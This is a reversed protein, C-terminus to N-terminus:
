KTTCSENEMNLYTNMKDKLELLSYQCKDNEELYKCLEIFAAVAQPNRSRGRTTTDSSPLTPNRKNCFLYRFCRRHYKDEAAVFDTFGQTRELIQEGCEDNRENAKEKLSEIFEITEINSYDVSTSSKRSSGLHLIVNGCFFCNEKINFRIDESRLKPPPSSLSDM